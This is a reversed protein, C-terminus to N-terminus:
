RTARGDPLPSIVRRTSTGASRRMGYRLNASVDLHEFLSAEQFVYGLARRHTPVFHRAVDDQWVEGGVVVRADHARELGAVCRLLSTKGSGNPGVLSTIGPDITLTIRNVGLIEGYFKSVDTLVIQRDEDQRLPVPTM